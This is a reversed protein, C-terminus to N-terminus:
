LVIFFYNQGGRWWDMFRGGGGEVKGARRLATRLLTPRGNGRERGVQGGFRRAFSSPLHGAQGGFHKQRLLTLTGEGRKIMIKRKSKIPGGRGGMYRHLGTVMYSQGEM